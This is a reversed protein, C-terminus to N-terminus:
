AGPVRFLAEQAVTALLTGDQARLSGLALGRAGGNFVPYLESLVWGNVDAPRHFWVSHDLSVSQRNDMGPHDAHPERVARTPGHDSLYALTQLHILPDDPLAVKPRFWAHRLLPDRGGHQPPVDRSEMWPTDYRGVPLGDPGPVSPTPAVEYEPSPEGQHFGVNMIFVVADSQHAVVRRASFSKGSRTEEVSYTLPLRGDPGGIFSAHLSHPPRESGLSLQAVRLAQGVLM